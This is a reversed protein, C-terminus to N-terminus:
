EAAEIVLKRTLTRGAARLRVRYEGPPAKDLKWSVANLGPEGPGSQKALVEGAPSLVELAISLQREALRYYVVPGEPPNPASWAGRVEVPRQPRRRVPRVASLHVKESWAKATMEQLPAVDIIYIGRGHTAVVLERDRPHVILDHVPAPPLGAGMRQWSRGSNLSVFLGLEAGVYLLDPNRPDARVVHIPGGVPLNSSISKWTMGYDDTRFLYAAQDDQRHRSLSLWATGAAHPSCEVRSICRDLPVDPLRKSVDVWSEGDNRSVHVRGDDTGAYLVGPKVPSEAITSITHGGNKAPGPQGLTLDHSIIHWTNGRDQSKFLFNGGYYLTKSDHTSLLLPASWNFRYAPTSARPKRPAISTGRRTRLDIRSLKGYQGEAYATFPDDPPVQCYFGDFGLIRVWDSNIIGAPSDTRSPGMWSGNDQMGGYIRYPINRDVAIGYFQGIPINTLPQWSASGDRSYSLGGDGALILHRPDDPNIWLDHHDVHVGKGAHSSFTRGGDRSLFLPIGLVFLRRQDAPDIRIKSFYFPRPCLDNVKIWTEGRDTSRFIGGTEVVGSLGPPQGAVQRINTRDTQIIAYVLRPDKRWIALGIRGMPRSPLGRTLRKWSNGGDRTAYIGAHKGFQVAPDGGSFGDRRVRYAAAYIIQPEAPDIAIDVCGTDADLRLVHEWTKGGDRTRFVGREPNPGWVRGLAAVYVIDPDKPHVALKGIHQTEALGAHKWSKGADRSVFVGNGWSVSNRPNAEGTGVWVVNPDSPAVAVAGIAAYPAGSFVCTWSDGNDRTKWVGGSAAGIYQVAPTKEVVAISTIRGGMKAPGISRATLGPLPQRPISRPPAAALCILSFLVLVKRM